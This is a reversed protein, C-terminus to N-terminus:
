STSIMEGKYCLLIWTPFLFLPVIKKRPPLLTALIWSGIGPGECAIKSQRGKEGREEETGGGM